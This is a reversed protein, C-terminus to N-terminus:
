DWVAQKTFSKTKIMSAVSHCTISTRSSDLPTSIRRRPWILASQSPFTWLRSISRAVWHLILSSSIAPHISAVLIERPRSGKIQPFWRLWPCQSSVSQWSTSKSVRTATRRPCQTRPQLRTESERSYCRITSHLRWLLSHLQWQSQQPEDAQRSSMTRTKSSAASTARVNGKTWIRRQHSNTLHTAILECIQVRSDLM